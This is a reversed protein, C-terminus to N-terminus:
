KRRELEGSIAVDLPMEPLVVGAPLVIERCRCNVVERAPATPDHPHQMKVGGIIFPQNFPIMGNGTYQRHAKLHSLRTRHDGTALWGKVLPTHENTQRAQEAHGLNFVRGMETRVITEARAAIGRVVEPRRRRGWAGDRAKIGLIRTVDQMTAYPTKGGIAALRISRNIQSRTEASINRILEASFEHLTQLQTFNVVPRIVVGVAALTSVVAERGQTYAAEFGASLASTGNRVFTNVAVDIERM